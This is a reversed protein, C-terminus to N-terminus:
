QQICYIRMSTGCNDGWGASYWWNNIDYSTGYLTGFGDNSGLTLDQCATHGAPDSALVGGTTTITRIQASASGGSENYGIGNCIANGAGCNIGGGDAHILNHLHTQINQGATNQAPISTDFPPTYSLGCNSAKKGSLGLINCAADTVQTSLYAKFRGPLGAAGALTQCNANATALGGINGNYSASSVFIKRATAPMGSAENSFVSEGGANIAVVAYYYVANNTLGTHTYPSTVGNIPTGTAKTVGASTSFYIKYATAGAVTGWILQNEANRGTALLHQPAAPVAASESKETSNEAWEFNRCASVLCLLNLFGGLWQMKGM